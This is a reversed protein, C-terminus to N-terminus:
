YIKIEDTFLFGKYHPAVIRIYRAQKGKLDFHYNEFRLRTETTPTLTQVTDARIFNKNDDSLAVEVKVPMYVGPGTLQMFRIDLSHLATKKEMDVTVDMKQGLFGQWRDDSYTLTGTIGDTLSNDGAGKYGKYYPTNYIVKKGIAKHYDVAFSDITSRNGCSDRIAAKILAHGKIPFPKKYLQGNKLPNSGDISYFIAPNYLESSLTVLMQHQNKDVKEDHLVVARPRCYNINARQMLLYQQQLRRQFDTYDQKQRRTWGIEALALARPFIMYDAHAATPVWETFLNAQVGLMYASQKDNLSDKPSPDFQYVKSLPIYGGIAEPETVPDSQYHDLYLYKSTAMIAYHGQRAVEIATHPNRWVMVAAGPALGGQTIEDWGLLQRHHANLFKELRNIGYSQLGELSSINKKNILVKCAECDKWSKKSAEDGGIHIYRSPFIAMVETLVNEMFAYTSDSCVNLEHVGEAAGTASLFPYAHLVEEAHGPFEIEPIINIGRQAAYSVIDRAEAQTYYGGYSGPAGEMAYKRGAKSWQTQPGEPRFAARSTLLPYKKIELRWGAGDTLHWHFNNLKYLAMVDLLKKIYSPPFFNRSVDLMLGRYAFRPYDAITLAPLTQRDWQLQQLQLLTFLGHISGAKGSATITIARPTIKLLYAEALHNELENKDISHDSKLITTSLVKDSVQVFNVQKSLNAVAREGTPLYWHESLLDATPRWHQPAHIRVSQDISFYGANKELQVPRPVIDYNAAGQFPQAKIVVPCAWLVASLCVVTVKLARLLLSYM